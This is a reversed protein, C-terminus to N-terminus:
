LAQFLVLELPSSQSASLPNSVAIIVCNLFAVLYSSCLPAVELTNVIRMKHWKRLHKLLVNLRWNKINLGDM